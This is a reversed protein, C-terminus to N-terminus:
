PVRLRAVLDHRAAALARARHSIRNKAQLDLEALSSATEDVWFVPDYGFGHHGRSTDLIRGELLGEHLRVTCARVRDEFTSGGPLAGAQAPTAIAMVCRFRARRASAPLGALAALLKANNDAFSCDPGAYRASYVGPAGDLADVELGTDDALALLGTAAAVWRAKKEANGELTPADEEVEPVDPHDAASSIELELDALGARIEILKHANRTAVCLRM